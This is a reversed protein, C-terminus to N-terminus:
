PLTLHSPEGREDLPVTGMNSLVISNGDAIARDIALRVKEVDKRALAQLILDYNHQGFGGQPRQPYLFNLTPGIQLWLREIMELLAPMRAAEYLGFRFARNHTLALAVDSAKKAAQFRANVARLTAIEASTIRAAAREAALGELVRRIDSLEMYRDADLVPVRFSQSSAAEIVGSAALKLLAERVPTPSTGLREALQRTVLREGPRLRGEQIAHKLAREAFGALGGKPAIAFDDPLPAERASSRQPSRSRQLCAPM